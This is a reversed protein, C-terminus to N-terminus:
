RGRRVDKVARGLEDPTAALRRAFFEVSGDRTDVNMVPNRSRTRRVPPLIRAGEFRAAPIVHCRNPELRVLVGEPGVFVGQRLTGRRQDARAGLTRIFRRLLLLPV